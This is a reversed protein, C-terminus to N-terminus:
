SNYKRWNTTETGALTAGSSLALKAKGFSDSHQLGSPTVYRLSFAVCRAGESQVTVAKHKILQWSVGISTPRHSREACPGATQYHSLTIHYHLDASQEVRFSNRGIWM